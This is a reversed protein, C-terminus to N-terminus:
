NRVIPSSSEKGGSSDVEESGGEEEKGDMNDDKNSSGDAISERIVRIARLEEREVDDKISAAVKRQTLSHAVVHEMTDPGISLEIALLYM